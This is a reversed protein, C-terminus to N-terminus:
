LSQGMATNTEAPLRGPCVQTARETERAAPLQARSLGTRKDKASTRPNQGTCSHNLTLQLGPLADLLVQAGHRATKKKTDAAARTETDVPEWSCFAKPKIKLQFKLQVARM